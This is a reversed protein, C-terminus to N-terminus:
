PFYLRKLRQEEKEQIVLFHLFCGFFSFCILLVCTQSCFLFSIWFKEALKEKQIKEGVFLYPQQSKIWTRNLVKMNNVYYIRDM